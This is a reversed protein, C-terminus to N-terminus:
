WGIEQAAETPLYGLQRGEVLYVVADGGGDGYEALDHEYDEGESEVLVVPNMSSLSLEFPYNPQHAIRVEADEPMDELMSILDAVIMTM